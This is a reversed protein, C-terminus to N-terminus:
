ITISGTAALRAEIRKSQLMAPVLEHGRPFVNGAEAGAAESYSTVANPEVGPGWLAFPVPGGAHTRTELATVHDPAVLIRCDGNKRAWELCPAVVRQDFDEIAQLKLATKGEHSAEDPAEIHLYVFDHRSFADLAAAVKGEYNTDLYGTAGVVSIVELGALRGIGNVLDVASIVAGSIGFQEPYTAISPAAGQGWLWISTAPLEGRQRRAINVPHEALVEQSREMLHVIADRSDGKPLHAAYEQGIIDHPPTCLLAALKRREADGASLTALHRYSVGGHFKLHVDGLANNLAGILTHAEDNGIHGATFDKLREKELTVLNCRFALTDPGLAIGQNAAELPARGTFAEDPDYGFVSLNGVDSGAPYGEPIPSFLACIGEAALADMAPTNAKGLPTTGGCDERPFDAMGDGLLVLCKM